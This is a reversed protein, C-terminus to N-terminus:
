SSRPLAGGRGGIRWTVSVRKNLLVDEVAGAEEDFAGGGVVHALAVVAVTPEHRCQGRYAVLVAQNGLDADGAILLHADVAEDEM